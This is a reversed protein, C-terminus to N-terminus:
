RLGPNGRFGGYPEGTSGEQVFLYRSGAQVPITLNWVNPTQANNRAIVQGDRYVLLVQACTRWV